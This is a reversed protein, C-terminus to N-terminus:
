RKNRELYENLISLGNQLLPELEVVLQNNLHITEQDRATELLKELLKSLESYCIHGTVSYAQHLTRQELKGASCQKQLELYYSKASVIWIELLDSDNDASKKLANNLTSLDFSNLTEATTLDISDGSEVSLYRKILNHLVKKEIPKRVVEAFMEVSDIQDQVRGTICIIPVSSKKRIMRALQAGNIGPMEYDVLILGYADYDISGNLKTPDTFSELEIDLEKTFSRYAHLCAPNDDVALVLKSNSKTNRVSGGDPTGSEVSDQHVHVFEHDVEVPITITFHWGVKEAPRLQLTGGAKEVLARVMSLGLGTGVNSDSTEWTKFPNDETNLVKGDDSFDIVLSEGSGTQEIATSILIKTKSFKVSNSLLNSVIVRVVSRSFKIRTAQDINCTYVCAISRSELKSSFSHVVGQLVPEVVFFDLELAGNMYKECLIADESIQESLTILKKLEGKNEELRNNENEELLVLMNQFLQRQEHNALRTIYEYRQAERLAANKGVEESLARKQADVVERSSFLLKIGILASVAAMELFAGVEKLHAVYITRPLYGFLNLTYIFMGLIFVTWAAIFYYAIPDKREIEKWAIVLVVMSFVAVLHTCEKSFDKVFVASILFIAISVYIILRLALKSYPGISNQFLSGIFKAAFIVMLTSGFTIMVTNFYFGDWFLLNGIGNIQCVTLGTSLVYLSYYVHTIDRTFFYWVFNSVSLIAVGGLFFMMLGLYINSSHLIQSQSEVSVPFQVPSQASAKLYLHGGVYKKKSLPFIFKTTTRNSESVFLGDTGLDEVKGDKIYYLSAYYLTPFDIVFYFDDALTNDIQEVPIKAWVVGEVFGLNPADFKPPSWDLWNQITIVDLAKREDVHLEIDGQVRWEPNDKGILIAAHGSYSVCLLLIVLIKKCSDM